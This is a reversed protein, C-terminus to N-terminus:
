DEVSASLVLQDASRAMSLVGAVHPMDNFEADVNYGPGGTGSGQPCGGQIMFGPIVRHFITGDYYKADVYNLFNKVTEPAKDAYLELVIKGKSTEMVVKPNEGFVPQIGASLVFFFILIFIITRKM